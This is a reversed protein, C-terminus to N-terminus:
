HKAFCERYEDTQNNYRTGSTTIITQGLEILSATGGAAFDKAINKLYSQNVNLSPKYCGGYYGIIQDRGYHSQLRELYRSERTLAGLTVCQRRLCRKVVAKKNQQGSNELLLDAEYVIKKRGNSIVKRINVNDTM